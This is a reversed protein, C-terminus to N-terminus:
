FAIEFDRQGTTGEKIQLALRQDGSNRPLNFVYFDGSLSEGPRLVATEANTLRFVNTLERGQADYVKVAAPMFGFSRDSRNNVVLRATYTGRANISGNELAISVERVNVERVNVSASSATTAVTTTVTPTPVTPTTVTPTTSAPRSPSASPNAQRAAKSSTQPTEARRSPV